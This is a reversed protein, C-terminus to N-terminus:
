HALFVTRRSQSHSKLSVRKRICLPLPSPLVFQFLGLCRREYEIPSAYGLTSHMRVTNYYLETHNLTDWKTKEKTKCNGITAFSLGKVALDLRRMILLVRKESEFMSVKRPERNIHRYGCIAHHREFIDKALGKLAERELKKIKEKLAISKATMTSRPAEITSFSM